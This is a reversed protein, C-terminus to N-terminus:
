ILLMVHKELFSFILPIKYLFYLTRFVRVVHAPHAKFFWLAAMSIRKVALSVIKELSLLATSLKLVHRTVSSDFM